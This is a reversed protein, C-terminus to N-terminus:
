SITLRLTKCNNSSVPDTVSDLISACAKVTTTGTRRAAVLIGVTETKTAPLSGPECSPTDPNINFHSSILPCVYDSGDATGNTVSFTVAMNAATTTSKNKVTFSYVVEQGIQAGTLNAFISGTTSLDVTRAAAQTVQSSMFTATGALALAFAGVAFKRMM